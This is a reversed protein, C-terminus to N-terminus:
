HPTQYTCHARPSYRYGGTGFVRDGLATSETDCVLYITACGSVEAVEKININGDHDQDLVSVLSRVKAEGSTEKLRVM